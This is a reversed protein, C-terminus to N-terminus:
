PRFTITDTAVASRNGAGDRYQAYVTKTGKGSTLTWARTTAYAVWSESSLGSQTNAIRMQSVGSGPSPDTAGLTLTVSRSRTRSAGDNITVTGTPAKKDVTVTVPDSASSTKGPADTAKATCTHAGESVGSLAISWAGSSPDARITGRSATGEFIEVTRRFLVREEEGLLDHSWELAARLSQHRPDATREGQKAARPFRRAQKRAATRLAGWRARRCAGRRATHGGPEPM